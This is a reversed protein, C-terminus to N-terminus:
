RTADDSSGEITNDGDFASPLDGVGLSELDRLDVEELEDTDVFGDDSDIFGGATDGDDGIINGDVDIFGGDFDGGAPGRGAGSTDPTRNRAAMAEYPTHHYDPRPPPRRPDSMRGPLASPATFEPALDSPRRPFPRRPFQRPSSPGTLESLQNLGVPSPASNRLSPLSPSSLDSPRRPPLSPRSSPISSPGTAPNSGSFEPPPAKPASPATLEPRRLGGSPGTLGPPGRFDGSPGTLDSPVLPRGRPAPAVTSFDSNSDSDRPLVAM